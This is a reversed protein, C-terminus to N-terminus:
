YQLELSITEQGPIDTKAVWQHYELIGNDFFVIEHESDAHSHSLVKFEL